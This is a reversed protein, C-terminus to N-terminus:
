KNKKQAEKKSKEKKREKLKTLLTVMSEHFSLCSAIIFTGEGRGGKREQNRM